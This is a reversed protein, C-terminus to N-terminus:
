LGFVLIQGQLTALYVRGNVILPVAYKVIDGTVGSSAMSVSALQVMTVPNFVRLTGIEPTTTSDSAVSVGWLLGNLTGNSSASFQIGPSAFNASTTTPTTNFLSTSQNFQYTYALAETNPFFVQNNMFVGGYIGFHPGITGSANTYFLQPATCGGSGQLHGMCTRDVVYVRYDKGGCVLMNSGPILMARTSSLDSDNGNLTAWNSPTFWDVISLTSNFKLISEGYETAGDYEGNGMPLYLNGSGDVSFGGSAGWFGGKSTSPNNVYVAVQALTSANYAFAWGYWTATDDHSGFLIYVNGNALTLASRNLHQAPVFTITSASGSITVSNVTAGTAMNLQFLVWQNSANVCTAYIFGNTYDAVPTSVCSLPLSYFLEEGQYTTLTTSLNATWVASGITNADFATVKGANDAIILLDKQVGGVVVRPLYIPQAYVAATVSYHGLLQLGTINAPTFIYEQPNWGLRSNDFHATPIVPPNIFRGGGISSCRAVTVLTLAVLFQKVM